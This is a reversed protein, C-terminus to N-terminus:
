DTLTVVYCAHTDACSWLTNAHTILLSQGTEKLRGAVGHRGDEVGTVLGYLNSALISPLTIDWCACHDYLCDDSCSSHVFDLVLDLVVVVVTRYYNCSV